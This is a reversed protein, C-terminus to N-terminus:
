VLFFPLFLLLMIFFLFFSFYDLILLNKHYAYLRPYFVTINEWFHLLNGKRLM